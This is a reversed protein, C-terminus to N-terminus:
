EVVKWEPNVFLEEMSKAIPVNHYFDHFHEPWNVSPSFSAKTKDDNFTVQWIGKTKGSAVAWCACRFLPDDM